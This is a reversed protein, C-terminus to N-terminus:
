RADRLYRYRRGRASADTCPQRFPMKIADLRAAPAITLAWIFYSSAGHFAPAPWSFDRGYAFLSASALLPHLHWLVYRGHRATPWYLVIESIWIARRRGGAMCSAHTDDAVGPTNISRRIKMRTRHAMDDESRAEGHHYIRMEIIEGRLMFLRCCLVHFQAMSAIMAEIDLAVFDGARKDDIEDLAITILAFYDGNM